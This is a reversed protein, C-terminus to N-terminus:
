STLRESVLLATYVSWAERWQPDYQARRQFKEEFPALRKNSKLKTRNRWGKGIGTRLM